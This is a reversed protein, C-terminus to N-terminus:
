ATDPTRDHARRIQNCVLLNAHRMSTILSPRAQIFHPDNYAGTATTVTVHSGGIEGLLSTWHPECSFVNLDAFAPASVSAAFAIFLLKLLKM